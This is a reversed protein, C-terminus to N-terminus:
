DEPNRGAPPGYVSYVGAHPFAAAGAARRLARRHIEESEARIAGLYMRSREATIARLGAADLVVSGEFRKTLTEVPCHLELALLTLPVLQGDDTTTM